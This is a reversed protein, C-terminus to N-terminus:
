TKRVRWLLNTTMILSSFFTTQPQFWYGILHQRYFWVKIFLKNILEISKLAPDNVPFMAILTQYNWCPPRWISNPIEYIPTSSKSIACLLGGKNYNHSSFYKSLQTLIVFMPYSFFIRYHITPEDIRRFATNATVNFKSKYDTNKPQPLFLVNVYWFIHTFSMINCFNMIRKIILWILGYKQFNVLQM